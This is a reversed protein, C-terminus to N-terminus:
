YCSGTQCRGSDVCGKGIQFSKFDDLLDRATSATAYEAIAGIKIDEVFPGRGEAGGLRVNRLRLLRNCTRLTHLLLISKWSSALYLFYLHKLIVTYAARAIESQHVSRRRKEELQELSPYAHCDLSIL